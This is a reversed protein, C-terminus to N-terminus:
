FVPRRRRKSNNTIGAVDAGTGTGGTDVDFRKMQTEYDRDNAKSLCLRDPEDVEREHPSGDLPVHGFAAAGRYASNRAWIILNIREEGIGMGIDDAGHRHRGLHLIARGKTHGYLLTPSTQRHNADGFRGCFRLGGSTFKDQGVLCINLTAESADHHMDLGKNGDAGADSVGSASGNANSSKYRVVFSHQHDLASTVMEDPYLAKNSSSSSSSCCMPAMLREVIETMIPELGIDNVVLGLRNMTNPRRCPLATAEFANVEQVLLDCFEPTFLDFAFIGPGIMTVLNSWDLDLDLVPLSSSSTNNNTCYNDDQEINNLANAFCPRFAPVIWEPRVHMTEKHSHNHDQHPHQLLLSSTSADAGADDGKAKAAMIDAYQRIVDLRKSMHQEAEVWQARRWKLDADTNENDNDDVNNTQKDNDGGSTNRIPLLNSGELWSVATKAIELLTPDPDADFDRDGECEDVVNVGQILIESQTQTKKKKRRNSSLLQFFSADCFGADDVGHMAIPVAFRVAVPARGQHDQLMAPMIIPDDDYTQYGYEFDDGLGPGGVRLPWSRAGYGSPSGAKLVLEVLGISLVRCQLLAGNLNNKQKQVISDELDKAQLALRLSLPHQHPLVLQHQQQIDTAAATAENTNGITM